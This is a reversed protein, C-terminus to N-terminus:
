IKSLLQELMRTKRMYSIQLLEQQASAQVQAIFAQFLDADTYSAIVRTHYAVDDENNSVVSELRNMQTGLEQQTITLSRNTDGLGELIAQLKKTNDSDSVRDPTTATGMKLWFILDRASPDKASFGYDLVQGDKLQTTRIGEEGLFYQDYTDDPTAGVGPTPALSVDVIEQSTQTGGFLFLGESDRANLLSEVEKLTAECYDPYSSDTATVDLAKITRDRVNSALAILRQNVAYSRNLRLEIAGARSELAAGEQKGQVSTLIKRSHEAILENSYKTTLKGTAIQAQAHALEASKKADASNLTQFTSQDSVRGNPGIITNIAM